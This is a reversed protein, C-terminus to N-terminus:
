VAAVQARWQRYLLSLEATLGEPEGEAADPEEPAETLVGLRDAEARWAAVDREAFETMKDVGMPPEDRLGADFEAQARCREAAQGFRTEANLRLNDLQVAEDETM